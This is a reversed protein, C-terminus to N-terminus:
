QSDLVGRMERLLTMIEFPKSICKIKDQLNHSDLSGNEGSMFLAKINPEIKNIEKFLEVGNLKPMVVDLLLVNIRDKNERFKKLGDMGDEACIVSYGFLPLADNLFCRVSEIDDVVLVTEDGNFVTSCTLQIGADTM